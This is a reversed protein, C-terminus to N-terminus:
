DDPLLRPPKGKYEMDECRLPFFSEPPSDAAEAYCAHVGSHVWTSLLRYIEQATLKQDLLFAACYGALNLSESYKDLLYKEIKQALGLHKGVKFKLKRSVREMATIREDGTALPRAYGVILPKNNEDRRQHGEIIKEITIGNKKKQLADSIFSCAGLITGPGYMRSDAALIGASVGAVPSTRMTGALSGIQNCWIRADPWSLCIFLAELWDALRREPLQGTVNLALVQFFSAKGVLDDMMSYGHNYIAEGIVWGGKQTIIKGRKKEWFSTDIKNPNQQQQNSSM